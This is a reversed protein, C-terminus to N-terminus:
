LGPTDTAKAGNSRSRISSSIIESSSDSVACFTAGNAPEITTAGAEGVGIGTIGGVTAAVDVGVPTGTVGDNGGGVRAGVIEGVEVGAEGVGVDAEGVGVDVETVKGVDVGVVATGTVDVGVEVDDGVRDAGVDVAVETGLVGVKVGDGLGVAM